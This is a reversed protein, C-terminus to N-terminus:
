YFLNQLVRTSALYKLDPANWEGDPGAMHAGLDTFIALNLHWNKKKRPRSLMYGTGKLGGRGDADSFVTTREIDIDRQALAAFLYSQILVDVAAELQSKTPNAM